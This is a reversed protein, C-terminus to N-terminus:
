CNMHLRRCSDLLTKTMQPVLEDPIDFKIGQDPIETGENVGAFTSNMIGNVSVAEEDSVDVHNSSEVSVLDQIRQALAVMSDPAGLGMGRNRRGLAKALLQLRHPDKRAITDRFGTLIAQAIMKTYAAAYKAALGLCQGHTERCRCTVNLRM